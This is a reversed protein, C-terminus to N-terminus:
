PNGYIYKIKEAENFQIKYKSKLYRGLSKGKNKLSANVKIKSNNKLHLIYYDEPNSKGIQIYIYGSKKITVSDISKIEKIDIMEKKFYFSRKIITSGIIEIDFSFAYILFYLLSFVFIYTLVMESYILSILIIALNFIIWVIISQTGRFKM